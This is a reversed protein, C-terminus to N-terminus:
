AKNIELQQPNQAQHGHTDGEYIFLNHLFPKQLKNKPLMGKVANRLVETPKKELMERATRSRQGGPFGTHRVYKKENLKKGTFRVKSANLVIVKDGGNVHPTFDAKHKGRIINAIQSALRGVIKDEADVVYWNHKVTNKNAFVTKYSQSDM